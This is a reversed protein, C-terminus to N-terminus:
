RPDDLRHATQSPDHRIVVRALAEAAEVSIRRETGVSFYKLKGSRMLKYATDRSVRYAQCFENVRYARREAPQTETPTKSM